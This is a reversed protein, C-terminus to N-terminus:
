VGQQMWEDVNLRKVSGPLDRTLFTSDRDKQISLEWRLMDSFEFRSKFKNLQKARAASSSSPTSSSLMKLNSATEKKRLDDVEERLSQYKSEIAVNETSSRSPSTEAHGIETLKEVARKTRELEEAGQDVVSLRTPLDIEQLGGDNLMWEQDWWSAPCTTQRQRTGTKPRSMSLQFSNDSVGDSSNDEMRNLRNELMSSVSRLKYTRQAVESLVDEEDGM